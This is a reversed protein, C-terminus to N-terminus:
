LNVFITFMNRWWTQKNYDFGYTPCANQPGQAKNAPLRISLPISTLLDPRERVANFDRFNQPLKSVMVFSKLICICQFLTM